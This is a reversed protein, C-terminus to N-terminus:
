STLLWHYNYELESSVRIQHQIWEPFVWGWFWCGGSVLYIPNGIKSHLPPVSFQPPIHYLHGGDKSCHDPEGYQAGRDQWKPIEELMISAWLPWLQRWLSEAVLLPTSHDSNCVGGYLCCCSTPLWLLLQQHLCGTGRGHGSRTTPVSWAGASHVQYHHWHSCTWNHMCAHNVHRAAHHRLLIGAAQPLWKRIKFSWRARWTSEQQKVM